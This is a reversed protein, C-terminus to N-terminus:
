TIIALTGFQEYPSFNHYIYSKAFPNDNFLSLFRGIILMSAFPKKTPTITSSLSSYSSVAQFHSLRRITTAIMSFLGRLAHLFIMWHIFMTLGSSAFASFLPASPIGHNSATFIRRHFSIRSITSSSYNNTILPQIGKFCKKIINARSWRFRMRNISSIIITIIFRSIDSPCGIRLLNSITLFRSKDSKISACHSNTIPRFFSSDITLSDLHTQIFIIPRDLFSQRNFWAM